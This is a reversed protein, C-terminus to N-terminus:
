GRRTTSSLTARSKVHKWRFFNHRHILHRNGYYFWTVLLVSAM